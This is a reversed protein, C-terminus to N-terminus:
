DYSFGGGIPSLAWEYAINFFYYVYQIGVVAIFLCIVLFLCLGIFNLVFALPESM